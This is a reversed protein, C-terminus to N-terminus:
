MFLLVPVQLVQLLLLVFETLAINLLLLQGPRLTLRATAEEVWLDQVLHCRSLVLGGTCTTERLCRMPRFRMRSRVLSVHSLAQVLGDIGYLVSMVRTRRWSTRKRKLLSLSDPLEALLAVRAPPVEHQDVSLLDLLQGGVLGEHPRM